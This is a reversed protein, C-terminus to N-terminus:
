GKFEPSQWAIRGAVVTMVPWGKLKWGAFPCNRAKSAFQEPDVVSEMEPDIVTIDAISEPSLTGRDLGLIWAPNLSMLEAMRMPTIVGKHLLRDCVLPVCTELGVIGNASVDFTESKDMRLHPAHDTAICDVTGDVLGEILADVDKQSRLPPSMKYNPDFTKVNDETLIFHHPAAECTIRIGRAKASRVHKLSEAASIHCIHVRSGTLRSLIVDRAVQIEEAASNIGRLGLETSVFSENMTGGAALDIDECHDLVPIDFIGAYELARRMVQNNQIPKGDDSIAVIGAKAMEGIEALEKGESRKTVAGIPFVNAKDADQAKEVIHRTVTECDNVPDTNPMCAISTFGGAVAAMSGTLITEKDERGPERLHVHMDIFGPFVMKGSVDVITWGEKGSFSGTDVIRGNEVLIDSVEDLNRGPDIIRGGKLLLTM